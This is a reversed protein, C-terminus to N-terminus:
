TTVMVLWVATFIGTCGSCPKMINESYFRPDFPKCMRQRDRHALKGESSARDTYVTMLPKHSCKSEWM